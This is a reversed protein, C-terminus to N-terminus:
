RSEYVLVRRSGKGAALGIGGGIGAGLLIGKALIGGSDDSGGTAILAVLSLGAGFGAGVAAGIAASKARSGSRSVQYIKRIVDKNVSTTGNNRTVLELATPSVSSLKGKLRKGDKTEIQLNVGAALAEVSAWDQPPSAVQALLFSPQSLLLIVSLTLAFLKITMYQKTFLKLLNKLTFIKVSL